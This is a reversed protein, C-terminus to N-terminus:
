RRSLTVANEGRKATVPLFEEIRGLVADPSDLILVGSFELDAADDEAVVPTALYRSLDAAIESLHANQYVLRGDQWAFARAPDSQGTEFADRGVRTAQDGAELRVPPMLDDVDSVQVIGERVSVVTREAAQRINFETGVVRVETQGAEVIFPRAPNSAVDFSAEANTMDVHRERRGLRVSISSGGNLTIVSGDELAIQRTEGPATAFTMTEVALDSWIVAGLVAAAAIGGTPALWRMPSPRTRHATFDAINEAAEDPALRPAIEDATDDLEAWLREARDYADLHAPDAALWNELALWDGESAAADNVRAVWEAAQASLTESPNEPKQNM